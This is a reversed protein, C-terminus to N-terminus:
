KLQSKFTPADNFFHFDAEPEGIFLNNGRNNFTWFKDIVGDYIKNQNSCKLNIYNLYELLAANNFFSIFIQNPTFLSKSLDKIEVQKKYVDDKTMNMESFLFIWIRDVKKNTFFNLIKDIDKDDSINVFVCYLKTEIYGMKANKDFGQETINLMYIRRDLKEGNLEVFLNSLSEDTIENIKHTQSLSEFSLENIKEEDIRNHIMMNVDSINDFDVFPNIDYQYKKSSIEIFDDKLNFCEAVLEQSFLFSLERNIINHSEESLNLREIFSSVSMKIIREERSLLSFNYLILISLKSFNSDCYYYCNGPHNKMSEEGVRTMSVFISNGRKNKEILGTSSLLGSVSTSIRGSEESFKSTDFYEASISNTFKQGFKSIFNIIYDVADNIENENKLCGVVGFILNSHVSEIGKRKLKLLIKLASYFPRVEINYSSISTDLLSNRYKYSLLLSIFSIENKQFKILLETPYFANEYDGYWNGSKLYNPTLGLQSTFDSFDRIFEVWNKGYSKTPKYICNYLIEYTVENPNSMFNFYAKKREVLLRETTKSANNKKAFERITPHLRSFNNKQILTNIKNFITNRDSSEKVKNYQNPHWLIFKNSTVENILVIQQLDRLTYYTKKTDLLKLFFIIEDAIPINHHMHFLRKKSFKFNM